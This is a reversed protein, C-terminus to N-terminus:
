NEFFIDPYIIEGSVNALSNPALEIAMCNKPPAEFPFSIGFTHAPKYGFKPYYSEHGLLVVSTFGMTKAQHHAAEILKGGVGRNQFEPLVSVPALALSDFAEDGNKIQVKTLLIHGVITENHEAIMSLKPLFADSNRLNKVLRHENGDRHEALAFAQQILSEVAEYDAPKEKRIILSLKEPM